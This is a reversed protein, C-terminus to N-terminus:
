NKINRLDYRGLLANMEGLFAPDKIQKAIAMVDTIADAGYQFDQRFSALDDDDLSEYFTMRQSLENALIRTHKKAEEHEGSTVLVNLFPTVSEDYTFNFHPFAEFYKKALDGARKDDGKRAFENAARMMVIRMAQLEAGYSDEVYTEEKDFNGWAWKNMINNYMKDEEVKGSGYIMLKRESKNKEPILRLALGELQMYDNLGLLKDNNCTVAFYIARDEINSAILDMIALEDKMIYSRKPLKFRIQNVTNSDVKSWLNNSVMKNVDLPLVLNRSTMITQGQINNKPNGIYALESFVNKPTNLEQDNRNQPDFFFVQQRNKGRYAETDLTLKIPDSDNVKNRLKEIYWDVAILSLNVVRVDRRINEVEQAYWLPYTDNDGYTFIISNEDVSNLFNAAYDRSGYNHRRSHDDFNQTGMLIPAVMIVLGAVVASMKGDLKVSNKLMRFLALVGLGIFICYTFFSGVLVYDRERPENPPQNSYLIIGLGTIFFLLLLVALNKPKTTLLFFLGFLGFIFPLMYYKNYAKNNAMSDPLADMNHLRLEDYPKIGSVWNGDSVDWNYYGQKGNQKGAFNWFFYRWYMWGMQYTMM